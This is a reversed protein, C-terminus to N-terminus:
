LYNLFFLSKELFMLAAAICTSLSSKEKVADCYWHCEVMWEKCLTQFCQRIMADVDSVRQIGTPPVTYAEPNRGATADGPCRDACGEGARSSSIM